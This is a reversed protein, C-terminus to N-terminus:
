STKGFDPFVLYEAPVRETMWVGNASFLFKHGDRHLEAARVSLVVPRGHRKGVMIATEIDPSLHVYQRKGPLLGQAQISELFRSATGHYLCDPPETPQLGLEVRISHGQNARIRNGDESLIFRQKDNDAVVQSLLSRTLQRGNQNVLQILTDIDAWGSEDLELGIVEPKHRLILSLFKSVEILDNKV